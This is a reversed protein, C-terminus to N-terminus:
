RKKRTEKVAKAAAQRREAWTMGLVSLLPYASLAEPEGDLWELVRYVVLLEERQGPEFHATGDLLEDIGDYLRKARVSPDDPTPKAM